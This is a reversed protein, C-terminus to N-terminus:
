KAKSGMGMDYGPAVGPTAGSAAPQGEKKAVAPVAGADGATANASAGPAPDIKTEGGQCGALSLAMLGVLVMLISRINM